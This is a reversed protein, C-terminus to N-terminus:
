ARGVARGVLQAGLGRCVAAGRPRLRREGVHQLAAHSRAVQAMARSAAAETAALGLKHVAVVNRGTAAARLGGTSRQRRGQLPGRIGRAVLLAASVLLQIAVAAAAGRADGVVQVVADPQLVREVVLVQSALLAVRQRGRPPPLRRSGLVPLRAQRGM